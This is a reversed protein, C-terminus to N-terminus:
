SLVSSKPPCRPSWTNKTTSYTQAFIDSAPPLADFVGPLLLCVRLVAADAESVPSPSPSFASAGLGSGVTLAPSHRLLHAINRLRCRAICSTSPLSSQVSDPRCGVSAASVQAVSCSSRGCCIVVNVDGVHRNSAQYKRAWLPTQRQGVGLGRSRYLVARGVVSVKWVSAAFRAM